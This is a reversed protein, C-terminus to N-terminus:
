RACNGREYGSLLDEGLNRHQDQLGTHMMMVFHMIFVVTTYFALFNSNIIVVNIINLKKGKHYDPRARRQKPQLTVPRVKSMEELKRFM